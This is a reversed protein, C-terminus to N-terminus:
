LVHHGPPAVSVSHWTTNNNSWGLWLANGAIQCTVVIINGTRAM